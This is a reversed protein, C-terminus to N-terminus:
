LLGRTLPIRFATHCGMRSFLDIYVCIYCFSEAVKVYTIDTIWVLNPAPQDFNRYLYNKLYLRPIAKKHEAYFQPKEVELGMEQMLRCVRKESVQYGIESLKHRIPKRGFRKKSDM